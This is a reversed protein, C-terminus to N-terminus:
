NALDNRRGMGARDPQQSCTLVEDIWIPDLIDYLKSAVRFDGLKWEGWEAHNLHSSHFMFGIGSIDRAVPQSGFNNDSPHIKGCINVRWLVMTNISRMSGAIKELSDNSVFKDDDDLYMVWGSRIFKHMEDFYKNFPFYTGFENGSPRIQKTGREIGSADVNIARYPIIYNASENDDTSVIMQINNHTQSEISQACRRFFNPRGSTRILVNILPKKHVFKTSVANVLSEYNAVHLITSGGLKHYWRAFSNVIPTIERCEKAYIINEGGMYSAMISYGGNMTIFRECNAMVMLQLENFSIDQNDYHLDHIVTAGLSRVLDFDGIEVPRVGDYLEPRGDINFYVVHYDSLMTILQALLDTDFYNIVDRGWEINVRNCICVIPKDFLFRKNRYREKLPPPSFMTEDLTPRHININPYNAAWAKKMNEWNRESSDETHNPSFFYFPATDNGSKTGLLKDNKHLWYAYPLISILEYGFEINFSDIIQPEVVPQHDGVLEIFGSRTCQAARRVGIASLEIIDDKKYTKGNLATLSEVLVRYELM